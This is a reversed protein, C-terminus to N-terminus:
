RTRFQIRSIRLQEHDSGRTMPDPYNSLRVTRCNQWAQLWLGIALIADFNSTREFSKAALWAAIRVNTCSKRAVSSRLAPPPLGAARSFCM